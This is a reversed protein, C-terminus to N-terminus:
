PRTPGAGTRALEVLAAGLAAAQALTCETGGVLVYPGDVAGTGPDVSMGLRAVVGPAVTLPEGVHVWDEEGLHVGHGTVCWPPCLRRTGHGPHQRHRETGTM